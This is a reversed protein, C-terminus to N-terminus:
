VSSHTMMHMLVHVTGHQQWMSTTFDINGHWTMLTLSFRSLFVSFEWAVCTFRVTRLFLTSLRPRVFAAM